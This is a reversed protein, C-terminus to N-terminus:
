IQFYATVWEVLNLQTIAQRLYALKEDEEVSEVQYFLNPRYFGHVHRKPEILGLRRAIDRIVVPTASATLALLTSSTVSM